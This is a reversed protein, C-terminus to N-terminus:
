QTISGLREPSVDDAPLEARPESSGRFLERIERHFIVFVGAALVLVAGFSLVRNILVVSVADTGSLGMAVLAGTGSLEVSGFDMPLPVIAAFAISFFYVALAQYWALQLGLGLIILYIGLGGIVLYSAAFATAIGLVHPHLLTQEGQAFQRLQELGQRVWKQRLAWEVRRHPKHKHPLHYWRYFAWVLLAFAFLGVMILPRLWSWGDIGIIVIGALCVSVELLTTLLTASSALGFNAARTRQLVWDPIFNGVPLDRTVEGVTFTFIATRPTVETKLARLLFYWLGCRLAEYVLTLLLFYLLYVRQFHEMLAVIKKPDGFALLGLLIALALILTLIVRPRFIQALVRQVNSM